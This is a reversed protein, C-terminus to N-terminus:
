TNHVSAQGEEEGQVLDLYVQEVYPFFQQLREVEEMMTDLITDPEFSVNSRRILCRNSSSAQYDGINLVDLLQQEVSQKFRRKFQRIDPVKATLCLDSYLKRRGLRPADLYIQIRALSGKSTPYQLGIEVSSKSQHITLRENDFWPARIIRNGFDSFLQKQENEFTKTMKRVLDYKEAYLLSIDSFGEFGSM